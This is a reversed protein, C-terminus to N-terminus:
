LQLQLEFLFVLTIQIKIAILYSQGHGIGKGNSNGLLPVMLSEIVTFKLRLKLHFTPRDRNRLM